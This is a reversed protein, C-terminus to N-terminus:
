MNKDNILKSEHLQYNIKIKQYILITHDFPLYASSKSFTLRRNFATEELGTYGGWIHPYNPIVAGKSM